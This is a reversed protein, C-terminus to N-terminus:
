FVIPVIESRATSFRTISDIVFTMAQTAEVGITYGNYISINDAITNLEFALSGELVGKPIVVSRFQKFDSLPNRLKVVIEETASASARSYDALIRFSNHQFNFDNERFKDKTSIKATVTAGAAETKLSDSADLTITGATVTRAKYIKVSKITIISGASENTLSVNTDLTLTGATVSVIRHLGNNSTSGSVVCSSGAIFDHNLFNSDSDTITDPSGNVFAITDAAINGKGKTNNTNNSTSGSVIVPRDVTFGATIFGSGSDTITDPSGGNDNFAITSATITAEDTLPYFNSDTETQNKPWYTASSIVLTSGGPYTIDQETTASLSWSPKTAGGGTDYGNVKVDGDNRASFNSFEVGTDNAILGKHVTATM